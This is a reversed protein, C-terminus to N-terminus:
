VVWGLKRGWEVVDGASGLIVRESGKKVKKMKDEEAFCANLMKEVEHLMTWAKEVQPDGKFESVATKRKM